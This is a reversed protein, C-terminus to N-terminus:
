EIIEQAEKWYSIEEKMINACRDCIDDLNTIHSRCPPRIVENTEKDVEGLCFDKFEFRVFFDSEFTSFDKHLSEPSLCQHTVEYLNKSGIFATNFTTRFLSSNSISGVTKFKIM